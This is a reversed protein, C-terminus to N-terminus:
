PFSSHARNKVRLQLDNLFVRSTQAEGVAIAVPDKGSFFGWWM